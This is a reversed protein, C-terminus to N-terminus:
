VVIALLNIRVNGNAQINESALLLKDIQSTMKNDVSKITMLYEILRLCDDILRLSDPRSEKYKNCIIISEYTSGQLITKADSMQNARQNFYDEETSLKIIELPLGSAMVKIQSQKNTDKIDFRSLLEDTQTNSIKNLHFIQSRSIITPLIDYRHESSLIYHVNKTPEELLKLLKNQSAPNMTHADEFIIVIRNKLKHKSYGIVPEIDDVGIGGSALTGKITIVENSILNAIEQAYKNVGFGRNAGLLITQAPNELLSSIKHADLQNIPNNLSPNSM